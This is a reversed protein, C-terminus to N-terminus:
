DVVLRYVQLTTELVAAHRDGPQPYRADLVGSSLLIALCSERTAAAIPLLPRRATLIWGRLYWVAEHFIYATLCASHRFHFRMEKDIGDRHLSITALITAHALTGAM